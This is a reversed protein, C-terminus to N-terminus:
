VLGGEKKHTEILFNAIGEVWHFYPLHFGTTGDWDIFAEYFEAKKSEEPYEIQLRKLEYAYKDFEKDSWISMGMRYYIHSHILMQRRRQKIVCIVSENCM